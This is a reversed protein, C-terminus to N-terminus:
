LALESLEKNLEAKKLKASKLEEITSETIKTSHKTENWVARVFSTSVAFKGAMYKTFNTPLYRRLSEIQKQIETKEKM